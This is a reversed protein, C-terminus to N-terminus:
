REDAVLLPVILAHGGAGGELARLGPRDRSLGADVQEAVV